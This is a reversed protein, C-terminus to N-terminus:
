LLFELRFAFRADLHLIDRMYKVVPLMEEEATLCSLVSLVGCINFFPQFHGSSPLNSDMNQSFLLLMTTPSLFKTHKPNCNQGM